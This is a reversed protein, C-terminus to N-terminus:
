RSEKTAKFGGNFYQGGAYGGWTVVGVRIVDQAEAKNLKQGTTAVSTGAKPPAIKDLAGTNSLHKVGFFIALGLLALGLIKPLPKVKSRAM